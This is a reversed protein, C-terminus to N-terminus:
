PKGYTGARIKAIEQSTLVDRLVVVEDMLGDMSKYWTGDVGGILFADVSSNMAIFNTKKADTGLTAHATDDWVSITGTHSGDDFTVAIHYWRGPSVASAHDLYDGIGSTGNGVSLRINGGPACTVAYSARGIEWNAKTVLMLDNASDPISAFKAWFCISFRKNSTGNKGPFRTSLNADAISFWNRDEWVGAPSRFRASASGEKYDQSETTVAQNTLTNTGISDSTLKGSEFRWLAVCDPDAAFNNGTPPPTHGGYTATL